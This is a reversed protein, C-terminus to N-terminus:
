IQVTDIVEQTYSEPVDQENQVSFIDYAAAAAEDNDDAEITYTKTIVARITVEYKNAM